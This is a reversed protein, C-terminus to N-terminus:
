LYRPHSIEDYIKIVDGPEFKDWGTFSTGCEMGKKAESIDDKVHKLSSLTGKYMEKDGRMVMVKSARKLNGSSVKCGAIKFKSKNKGTITFVDKIEVEGLIKTEILPELLNTLDATVDEILRYIVNYDRIEVSSREAKLAINKPVKLNFCLLKADLTKALEIDSDSPLNADHSVVVATVEDNGMGHISEKIAEASGFVDSKIIYKVKTIQNDEEMEGEIESTDLGAMKLENIKEKRKHERVEEQRKMNITEIDKAAEIQKQRYIRHECVKKAIQESKAELVQNGADPLEKWGWIQVPTSPPAVKVPKGNEDNMGRVKCYTNGAVLFSGTKISSRRVLVTAVNGLGKAVRSEIVWGEAPIQNVESKFDNLESLAIIAEELKDMNLGTKGSVRITQTDGGYDEVDIGHGSLDAIVKDANVGPKDCKTVAVVMPVSLRKTHNIAEITQPMVSDDAAVVLVVIDTFMAGRERMKLFAAHGPTDLFTIKKKSIPTVVSFAGIHQTIGGHEQDVVATKRLYDLLTTKGHDVHGMITVVPARPKLKSPDDCEPSPFLDSGEDTSMQADFGFEDAILSANEQDLIYNHTMNDFGLTKLKKLFDTLPVNLITSLNSVTIFKPLHITVKPRKVALGDQRKKSSKNEKRAPGSSKPAAQKAKEKLTERIQHYKKLRDKEDREGPSRNVPAKRNVQDNKLYKLAFRNQKKDGSTGPSRGDSKGQRADLTSKKVDPLDKFFSSYCRIPPRTYRGALASGKLLVCRTRSIM